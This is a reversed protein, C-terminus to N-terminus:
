DKEAWEWPVIKLQKSMIFQNAFQPDRANYLGKVVPILRLLFKERRTYGEFPGRTVEEGSLLDLYDSMYDVYKFAVIPNQTITVYETFSFLPVAVNLELATRNVYYSMHQLFLNDEDDDAMGHLFYALTMFAIGRLVDATLMKVGYKETESLSEWRELDVKIRLIKGKIFSAMKGMTFKDDKLLAARWYGEDYHGVIPDYGGAKLRDSLLRFMFGRHITTMVALYHQHMFTKDEPNLKSEVRGMFDRTKSGIRLWHQEAGKPIRLKGNKDVTIESYLTPLKKWNDGKYDKKHVWNGNEDKRIELAFGIMAQMSLLNSPLTYPMWLPKDRLLFGRDYNSALEILGTSEAMVNLKATKCKKVGDMGTRGIESFLVMRAENSAERTLYYNGLLTEQLYQVRATTASSVITGIQGLLNNAVTYKTLFDVIKTANLDFGLGLFNKIIKKKRPADSANIDLATKLLGYVNSESGRIKKGDQIVERRRYQQEFIQVTNMVKSKNRFNYFTRAYEVMAGVLDRTILNPDKLPKSHHVPATRLVFDNNINRISDPDGYLLTDDEETLFTGSIVGKLRNIGDKKYVNDKNRHIAVSMLDERIPILLNEKPRGPLGKDFQAKMRMYDKAFKKQKDSLKDYAKNKYKDSPMLMDGKWYNVYAGLDESYYSGQNREKWKEYIYPNESREAKQKVVEEIQEVDSRVQTNEDFWQIWEKRYARYNKYEIKQSELLSEEPVRGIDAMREFFLRKEEPNEPIGYKEQMKKTFEERAKQYEGENFESIMYGTLNGDKYKEFAFDYNKFGFESIKDFFFKAFNTTNMYTEQRARALLANVQRIIPDSSYRASGAYRAISNIDKGSRIIEKFDKGGEVDLPQNFLIANIEQDIIFTSKELANGSSDIIKDSIGHEEMYIERASEIALDQLKRNLHVEAESFKDLAKRILKNLESEAWKPMDTKTRKINNIKEIELAAERETLYESMESLLPKYLEYFEMLENLESDTLKKSPDFLRKLVSGSDEMIMEIFGALGEGTLNSFNETELAELQKKLYRIRSAKIERKAETDSISHPDIGLELLENANGFATINPEELIKNIKKNLARRIKSIKRKFEPDVAISPSYMEFIATRLSDETYFEHEGQENIRKYIPKESFVEMLEQIYARDADDQLSNKKNILDQKTAKTIIGDKLEQRIQDEALSYYIEKDVVPASTDTGEIKKRIYYELSAKNDFLALFREWLNKLYRMLLTGKKLKQQRLLVKAGIKHLVEKKAKIEDGEYKELYQQFYQDYEETSEVKKLIKEFDPDNSYESHALMLHVLEESLNELTLQGRKFAMVGRLPDALAQVDDALKKGTVEQWWELSEIKFGVGEAFTILGNLDPDLMQVDPFSDVKNRNQWIATEMAFLSPNYGYKEAEVLKKQYEPHSINVCKM